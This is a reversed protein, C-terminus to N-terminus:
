DVILGAPLIYLFLLVNKFAVVVVYAVFGSIFSYISAPPAIEVPDSRNVFEVAIPENNLWAV